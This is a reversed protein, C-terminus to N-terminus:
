ALFEDLVEVFYTLQPISLAIIALKAFLEIEAAISLYGAERCLSASFDAVYTIGLMKFLPTLYETEIPLRRMITELFSAVLKIQALAYVFIVLGAAIGILMAFEAHYKKIPMALFVAAIGILGIKLIR